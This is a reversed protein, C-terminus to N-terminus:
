INKRTKSTKSSSNSAVNANCFSVRKAKRTNTSKVDDAREFIIYLTNLRQFQSITPQIYADSRVHVERVVSLHPKTGIFKQLDEPDTDMNYLYCKHVRFRKKALRNNHGVIHSFQHATIKNKEDLDIRNSTVREINKDADLYIIRLHIAFVDDKYFKQYQKRHSDAYELWDTALPADIDDEDVEFDSESEFEHEHEHEPTLINTM